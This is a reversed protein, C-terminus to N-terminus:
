TVIGGIVLIELISERGAITVHGSPGCVAPLPFYGLIDWQKLPTYYTMFYDFLESVLM